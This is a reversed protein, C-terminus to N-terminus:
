VEPCKYRRWCFSTKCLLAQYAGFGMLYAPELYAHILPKFTDARVQLGSGIEGRDIAFVPLRGIGGLARPRFEVPLRAPDDPTLSLGGNGPAVQGTSDLEVEGNRVGLTASTSGCLPRGDANARMARYFTQSAEVSVALCILYAYRSTYKTDVYVPPSWDPSSKRGLNQQRGVIGTAWGNGLQQEPKHESEYRRVLGYVRGGLHNMSSLVESADPQSIYGWAVALRILPRSLEVVALAHELVASQGVTCHCSM